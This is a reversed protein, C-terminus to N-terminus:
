VEIMKLWAHTANLHVPCATCSFFSHASVTSKAHACGQGTCRPGAQATAIDAQIGALSKAAVGEGGEPGGGYRGVCPRWCGRAQLHDQRARHAEAQDGGAAGCLGVRCTRGPSDRFYDSDDADHGSFCPFLGGRPSGCYVAAQPGLWSSQGEEEGTVPKELVSMGTALLGVHRRRGVGRGAFDQAETDQLQTNHGPRARSAAIRARGLCQLVPGTTRPFASRRGRPPSEEDRHVAHGGVRQEITGTGRLVGRAGVVTHALSGAFCRPWALSSFVFM